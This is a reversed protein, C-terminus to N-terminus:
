RDRGSKNQLFHQVAVMYRFMIKLGHKKPSVRRSIRAIRGIYDESMFTAEAIPNVVATPCLRFQQLSTHVIHAFMHIVPKLAYLCLGKDFTAQALKAYSVLFAHGSSIMQWSEAASLFFSASFVVQMFQHIAGCADIILEVCKGGSFDFAKAVFIHEVFKSVTATDMNKSWHGKPYSRASAYGLMEFTFQSFNVREKTDTRFQKFAANLDALSDDLRNKRYISKLAYIISSATFDKGIGAHFVHFLDLKYFGAINADDLLLYRLLPSPDNWPLENMRGCTQLWQAATIRIDEFLPGHTRGAHGLFCVGKLVATAGASKRVNAFSRNHLGVERLFPLDGTLGIIAIRWQEGCASVGEAWLGSLYQGWSDLLAMLRNRKKKYMEVKIATFLFRNTLPNGKLNVGPQFEHCGGGHRRKHESGPVPQLDVPNRATGEGFASFMSLIMIADKKYTRGGDGHLYYPITHEFDIPEPQQFIEHDPFIKQYRCWFDKLCHDAYAIPLGLVKHFFGAKALSELQDKPPFCPYSFTPDLQLEVKPFDMALGCGSLAKFLPDDASQVHAKAIRALTACRDKKCAAKAEEVCDVAPVKPERHEGRGYGVDLWHVLVSLMDAVHCTVRM